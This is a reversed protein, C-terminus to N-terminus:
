QDVTGGYDMLLECVDVAGIFAAEHLPTSGSTNPCNPDIGDELFKQVLEANGEACAKRFWREVQEKEKQIRKKEAKERAKIQEETEEDPDGKETGEAKVEVEREIKEDTVPAM